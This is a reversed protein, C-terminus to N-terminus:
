ITQYLQPGYLGVLTHLSQVSVLVFHPTEVGAALVVLHHGGRCVGVDCHPSYTPNNINTM